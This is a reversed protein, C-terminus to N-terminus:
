TCFHRRLSRFARGGLGAPSSTGVVIETHTDDPSKATIGFTIKYNNPRDPGGDVARLKFAAAVVDLACRTIVFLGVVPKRTPVLGTIQHCRDVRDSFEAANTCRQSSSSGDVSPTHMFRPAPPNVGQGNQPRVHLIITTYGLTLVAASLGFLDCLGSMDGVESTDESTRPPLPNTQETKCRASRAQPIPPKM